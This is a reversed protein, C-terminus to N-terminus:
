REAARGPRRQRPSRVAEPGGGPERQQARWTFGWDTSYFAHRMILMTPLCIASHARLKPTNSGAQFLLRSHGQVLCDDASQLRLSLSQCFMRLRLSLSQCFCGHRLSYVGAFSFARSVM